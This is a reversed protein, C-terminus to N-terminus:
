HQHLYISKQAHVALVFPILGKIVKRGVCHHLAAAVDEANCSM